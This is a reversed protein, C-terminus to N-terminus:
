TLSHYNLQVWKILGFYLEDLVDHYNNDIVDYSEIDHALWSHWCNDLIQFLAPDITNLKALCEIYSITPNPCARIAFYKGVYRDVGIKWLARNSKFYVAILNADKMTCKPTHYDDIFKVRDFGLELYKPLMKVHGMVNSIHVLLDDSFIASLFTDSTFVRCLHAYIYVERISIDAHLLEHTFSDVCYNNNKILFTAANGKINVQYPHPHFQLTVTKHKKVHQWLAENREDVLRQIDPLGIV